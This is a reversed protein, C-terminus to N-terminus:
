SFGHYLGLDLERVDKEGAGIRQTVQHFFIAAEDINVPLVKFLAANADDQSIRIRVAVAAAAAARLILHREVEYGRAMDLAGDPVWGQFM